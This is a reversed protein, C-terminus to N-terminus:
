IKSVVKNKFKMKTVAGKDNEMVLDAFLQRSLIRVLEIGVGNKSKMEDPYGAGNDRYTLHYYNDQKDLNIDIYIDAISSNHKISNTILETLIIGLPLTTEISLKENALESNFQINAKNFSTTNTIIREIYENIDVNDFEENNYLQDHILAISNIKNTVEEITTQIEPNTSRNSQIYLLGIINQLNNKVRHHVETLLLENKENLRQLETMNKSIDKNQAAIKKRKRFNDIFLFFLSALFLAGIGLIWLLRKRARIIREQEEEQLKLALNYENTKVENKDATINVKDATEIRLNAYYLTSDMDGKHRYYEQMDELLFRYYAYYDDSKDNVLSYYHVAKDLLSKKITNETEISYRAALSTYFGGVVTYEKNEKFIELAKNIFYISSDTTSVFDSM